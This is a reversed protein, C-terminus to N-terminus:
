RKRRWNVKPWSNVHAGFLKQNGITSNGLLAAATVSGLRLHEDYSNSNEFSENV